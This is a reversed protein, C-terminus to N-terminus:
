SQLATAVFGVIDFNLLRSRLIMKVHRQCMSPGYRELQGEPFAYSTEPATREADSWLLIVM